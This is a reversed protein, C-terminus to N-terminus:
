HTWNQTSVWGGDLNPPFDARYNEHSRGVSKIAWFLNLIVEKVRTILTNLGIFGHALTHLSIDGSLNGLLHPLAWPPLTLLCSPYHLTVFSTFVGAGSSGSSPWLSFHTLRVTFNEVLPNKVEEATKVEGHVKSAPCLIMVSVLWKQPLFAKKETM